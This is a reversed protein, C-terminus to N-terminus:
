NENIDFISQHKLSYNDNLIFIMLKKKKKLHIYVM